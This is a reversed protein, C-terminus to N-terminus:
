NGNVGKRKRSSNTKGGAALYIKITFYNNAFVERLHESAKKVQEVAEDKADKHAVIEISAKHESPLAEYLDQPPQEKKRWLM